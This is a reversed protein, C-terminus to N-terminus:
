KAPLWVQFQSGQDPQSMVEIRGHHADVITKCHFMGIGMGHRKTTQFPRFLSNRIFEARMGCGNDRVSLVSWGERAETEVQVEGGQGLAEKANLVLNVVVKQMQDPDMRCKAQENLNCRLWPKEM